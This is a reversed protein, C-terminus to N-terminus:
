RHKDDDYLAIEDKIAQIRADISSQIYFNNKVSASALQLQSVAEHLNGNLYYHEAM